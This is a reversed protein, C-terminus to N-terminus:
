AVRQAAIRAARLSFSLPRSPFNPRFPNLLFFDNKKKLDKKLNCLLKFEIWIQIEIVEVRVIFYPLVEGCLLIHLPMFAVFM